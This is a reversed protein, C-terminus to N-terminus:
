QMKFEPIQSIIETKMDISKRNKHYYTETCEIDTHGMLDMILRKDVHSDLLISGYTKRIKHPSKHYIDLKKCISDLRRSISHTNLRRNNEYFIYDGFPNLLAIKRLLWQYDNPIVSVRVGAPTKPFEKVDYVYKGKEELYCTETRRVKFSNGSFDSHKLTVLEGVRIGTLFLIIIGINRMDLNDILYKMIKEREFENFVEEYDEKIIRKFDSESTDLEQFLEEVNFSILKRKKARKLFGRTVGKLNSFAKATMEYEPIQEELFEGFEEASVSKIKKKGFEKFHKKFIYDNRLHTSESIKKLELRRDNWENFVEQITPDELEARWYKVVADEISDKTTRKVLRRGNEKDPLYTRWKGDKGQTIKYPHKELAEKRKNMDIQEQLYTLSIMGNDLAYKLIEDM